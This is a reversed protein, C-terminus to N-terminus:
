IRSELSKKVMETKKSIRKGKAILAQETANISRICAIHLHKLNSFIDDSMNELVYNRLNICSKYTRGEEIYDALFIIEDFVTMDVAGVTHNSVANLIEENAYEPFDRKIVHPATYSHFIEPSGIEDADLVIGEYSLIRKQEEIPLEKSIDHLFAAAVLEEMKSPLCCEALLRAMKAVGLTHAYRKESMYPKIKPALAHKTM